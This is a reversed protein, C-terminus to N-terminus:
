NIIILYEIGSKLKREEVGAMYGTRGKERQKILFEKDEDINMIILAYELAIDFLDDISYYFEIRKNKLHESTRDKSLTKWVAYLKKLKLECKRPERTPIRAKKWYITCEEIVLTISTNFDLKAIRMNYFLVRLCDGNSPLKGSIIQHQFHGVFYLKQGLSSM